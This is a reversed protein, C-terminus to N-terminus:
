RSLFRHPDGAASANASGLWASVGDPDRRELEDLYLQRATALRLCVDPALRTRLQDGTDVWAQCLAATTMREVGHDVGPRFRGGLLVGTRRLVWPCSIALLVAVVFGTAGLLACLGGISLVLGACSAARLAIGSGRPECDADGASRVWLFVAAVVASTVATSVVAGPRWLLVASVMGLVGVATAVVTWGIRWVM